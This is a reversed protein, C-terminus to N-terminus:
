KYMYPHLHLTIIVHVVYTDPARAVSPLSHGNLKCHKMLNVYAMGGFEFTLKTIHFTSFNGCPKM